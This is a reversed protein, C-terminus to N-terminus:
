PRAHAPGRFVANLFLINMGDIYARYNPDATFGIVFGRGEPQVVLLPKYALQKRNEEWLYGSALLKDAADFYAANTGKDLKIPAYIARGQVLANVTEAGAALWHNADLRARLLVGPVSDPLEREPLIAKAFDAETALLKGPARSEDKGAAESKKGAEPERVLNEQTLALLDVGKESLFGLAESIGILTGGAAVWEKIRRVGAGGLAHSYNGGSPLILVNFRHLDATGLQATRIPTVPYGFQRELVFRTAGAASSSVPTDWALAIAPKRMVNVYRSGFNVGEDVWGTNTAHADAGTVRALRAVRDPLDAPNDAVKLILTGSPFKSGNLAFPKDSSLVRLDERLAAALFRGAAASGWPVLYAVSAKGGRV